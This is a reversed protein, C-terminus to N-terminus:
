YPARIMVNQMKLGKGCQTLFMFAHIIGSLIDRITGITIKNIWIKRVFVEVSNIEKQNVTFLNKM